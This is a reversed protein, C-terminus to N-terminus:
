FVFKFILFLFLLFPLWTKILGGFSKIRGHLILGYIIQVTAGDVWNGAFPPIQKVKAEQLVAAAYYHCNSTILNYNIHTFKNSIREIADDWQKPDVNVKWRQVPHGFLMCGRGITYPGEFDYVCGKSDTVGVHGIAPCLWSLMPIPTWVICCADDPNIDPLYEDEGEMM